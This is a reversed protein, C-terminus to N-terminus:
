IAADSREECQRQQEELPAVSYLRQMEPSLHRQMWQIMHSFGETLSFEPKWNLDKQIKRNDAVWNNTDWMRNPMTSWQPEIEINLLKRAIDVVEKITTQYGTGVNYVAGKELKPHAAVQLYANVVDEVYIMDRAINPDVLPPLTKNLGKAILTPMLRTPEEYPGYVSYLRLTAIRANHKQASYRCYLTSSAKAVAYYSNPEIFDIETAPENKYGYESSSGTNIFTEFGQLLSAELLNITGLINTNVIEFVDTQHSYAGHVALHFIWDPSINKLLQKLASFDLLSVIHIKIDSLLDAIRWDRYGPRLLVHVEHGEHLLRRALNAGVFGTAGTILVKKVSM